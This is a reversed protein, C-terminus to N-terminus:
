DLSGYKGANYERISEALEAQTNMMFPGYAAVPEDIPVGSMMPPLHFTNIKYWRSGSVRRNLSNCLSKGCIVCRISVKCSRSNSASPMTCRSTYGCTGGFTSYESVSKPRVSSGTIEAM